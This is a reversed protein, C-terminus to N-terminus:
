PAPCLDNNRNAVCQVILLADGIDVRDGPIGNVQDDHAVSAANVALM